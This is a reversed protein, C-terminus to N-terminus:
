IGLKSKEKRLEEIKETTKALEASAWDHLEPDSKLRSLLSFIRQEEGETLGPKLVRDLYTQRIKDQQETLLRQSDSRNKLIGNIATVLPLIATLLGVLVVVTKGNRWWPVINPSLGTSILTTEISKLREDLKFIDELTSLRAAFGSPTEDSHHPLDTM